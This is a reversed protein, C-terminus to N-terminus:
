EIERPRVWRLLGSGYLSVVYSAPFPSPKTELHCGMVKRLLQRMQNTIIEWTGKILIHSNALRTWTGSNPIRCIDDREANTELAVPGVVAIGLAAGGGTLTWYLNV